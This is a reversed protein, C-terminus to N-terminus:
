WGKNPANLMCLADMPNRASCGYSHSNVCLFNKLAKLLHRLGIKLRSNNHRYYITCHSWFKQFLRYFNKRSM